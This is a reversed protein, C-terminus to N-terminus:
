LFDLYLFREVKNSKLDADISKLKEIFKEFVKIEDYGIQIKGKKHITLVKEFNAIKFSREDRVIFEYFENYMLFSNYIRILNILIFKPDFEYEKMNKIKLKLGRKGTFVDLSYNLLNSLKEGLKLNFFNQSCNKSIVVM